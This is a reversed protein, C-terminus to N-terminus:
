KLKLTKKLRSIGDRLQAPADGAIEIRQGCGKCYIFGKLLTELSGELSKMVPTGCVPCTVEESM